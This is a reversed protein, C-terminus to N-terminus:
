RYIIHVNGFDGSDSGGGAAVLWSKLVPWGVGFRIALEDTHHEGDLFTIFEPPYPGGLSSKPTASHGSASPSRSNRPKPPPGVTKMMPPSEQPTSKTATIGPINLSEEAPYQIWSTRPTSRLDRDRNRVTELVKEAASPRRPRYPSAMPIVPTRLPPTAMPTALDSSISLISTPAAPTRGRLLSQPSYPSDMPTQPPTYQALPMGGSFSRMRRRTPLQAESGETPSADQKKLYPYRHVRRLFGKIVGFSTFRRVDIGSEHHVDYTHMWDFVTSGPKFRSYLHLLKPWDPPSAGTIAM